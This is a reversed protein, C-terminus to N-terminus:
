PRFPVVALAWYAHDGPDHVYQRVADLAADVLTADYPILELGTPTDRYKPLALADLVQGTRCVLYRVHVSDTIGRVFASRPYVPLVRRVIRSGGAVQPEFEGYALSFSQGPGLCDEAGAAIGPQLEIETGVVVHEEGNQFSATIRAPPAGAPIMFPARYVASLLGAGSQPGVQVSFHVEAGAPTPPQVKLEVHEGARVSRRTMVIHFAGPTAMADMAIMHNGMLVMCMSLAGAQARM